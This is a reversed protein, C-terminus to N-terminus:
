DAHPLRFFRYLKSAAYVAIWLGLVAYLVVSTDLFRQSTDCAPFVPPIMVTSQHLVGNKYTQLMWDPSLFSVQTSYTDVGQVFASPHVLGAFVSMSDAVDVCQGAVVHGAAM